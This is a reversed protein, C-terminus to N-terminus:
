NSAVRRLLAVAQVTVCEGRGEPGMGEGRTGKVSVCSESIGLAGALRERIAPAAPAIMPLETIVTADVNEVFLGAENVLGRVRALLDLSDAGRWRPDTDPFHRGIDGLGAAGLLADALAHCLADGDSHGLPGVPCDPFTVGGLVCRRGPELRHRDWGQGIRYM